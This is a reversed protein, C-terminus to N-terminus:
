SAPPSVPKTAKKEATVNAYRARGTRVLTRAEDVPVEESTGQKRQDRHFVWEVKVTDSM